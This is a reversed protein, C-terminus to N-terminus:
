TTRVIERQLHRLVPPRKKALVFGIRERELWANAVIQMVGTLFPLGLESGNFEVEGSRCSCGVSGRLMKGKVRENGDAM